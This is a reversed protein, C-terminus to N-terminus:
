KGDQMGAQRGAQNTATVQADCTCADHRKRRVLVVNVAVGCTTEVIDRDEAEAVLMKMEKTWHRTWDIRPANLSISNRNEKTVAKKRGTNRSKYNRNRNRRSESTHRMPRIESVIILALLSMKALSYKGM